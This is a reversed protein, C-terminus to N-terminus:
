NNHSGKTFVLKLIILWLAFVLLAEMAGVIGGVLIDGPYHVGLYVRSYSVLAAWVLMIIAMPRLKHWLLLAMFVAIAFSNSAHSSIFGYKGGCRGLTYVM